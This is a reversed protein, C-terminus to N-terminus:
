KAFSFGGASRPSQQVTAQRVDADCVARLRSDPPVGAFLGPARYGLYECECSRIFSFGSGRVLRPWVVLGHGHHPRRVPEQRLVHEAPPQQYSPGGEQGDAADGDQLLSPRHEGRCAARRRPLRYASRRGVGRDSSPRVPRSEPDARRNQGGRRPVDAPLRSRHPLDEGESERQCRGRFPGERCIAREKRPRNVDFRVRSAVTCQVRYADPLETLITPPEM